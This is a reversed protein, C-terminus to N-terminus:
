YHREVVTNHSWTQMFPDEVCMWNMLNSLEYSSIPFIWQRLILETTHAQM